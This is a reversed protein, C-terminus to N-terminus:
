WQKRFGVSVGRPLVGLTWPSDRSHAYYGAAAGIAWGALVDTQWHARVKMRAVADYAPLMELAWVWPHDNHYELIFPTVVASMSGVEGSPFSYHKGGKFWQNPDDTQTPRVRTFVYKGGTTAVASILVSDVSQWLTRGMPTEGGEWFAAAVTGTLVIGLVGNQTSRKWIGSDDFNLRHDIGLPGGGARALGTCALVICLLVARIFSNVM